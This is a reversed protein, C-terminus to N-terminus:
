IPAVGPVRFYDVSVRQGDLREPRDTGTLTPRWPKFVAIAELSRAREMLQRYMAFTGDTRSGDAHAEWVMALRGGDPYPLSAFLIHNVASFIATTAGVGLALTLITIVTFGPTVRLRRAAYRLDALFSEVVNEWGYDRVQERVGTVNGLELRAARVADARSLGRARHAATAQDLYHQVEDAVDQDAASSRTLERIGRILQRWLSALSASPSPSMASVGR